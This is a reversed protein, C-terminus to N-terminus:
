VLFIADKSEYNKKETTAVCKNKNSTLHFDISVEDINSARNVNKSKSIILFIETNNRRLSFNLDIDASNGDNSAELFPSTSPM